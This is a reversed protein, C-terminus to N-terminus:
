PQKPKKHILNSPIYVLQGRRFDEKKSINQNFLIYAMAALIQALISKSIDRMKFIVDRTQDLSPIIFDGLTYVKSAQLSRKLM